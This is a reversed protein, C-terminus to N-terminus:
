NSVPRNARLSNFLVLLSSSSMAIVAFLPTVYGFIAFPVALSNYILSIALNQKMIRNAKKISSIIQLIPYLKDQQIIIDASNQSIDSANSFSISIDALTLAPADNIGDGVMIIKKGTKKLNTLFNIKDIPSQSHYFDPIKLKKSVNSVSQKTDGSLISLEFNSRKLQEIIKKSDSKLQDYFTLIFEQDGIKMFLSGVNQNEKVSDDFNIQCFEKKGLRIKQGDLLAELGLGKHEIANIDLLTQNYAALVAKSFPHNSSKSVSAAIKLINNRKSTTINVLKDNQIQQINQLKMKGLTLSGTKDFIINTISTIKEIVEGSKIIIGSKLLTSISITQVIPVALALACPCAIILVAITNSIAIDLNSEFFFKWLIYTFIAITTTIPIYLKSLNDAIKVYHGKKSEINETLKIIRSLISNSNTKTVLIKIPSGINISGSFVTSDKSIKQPLSEGTIISQDVESEGEIVIGDAAIKEGHNCLLIMGEKIQNSPITKVLNNHLIKAYSAMILSFESALSFAKKRVKLDLYRGVLLFFILMVASDFYIHEANNFTKILSVFSSLIIAISIMLDMNPYGKIASKYASKIFPLSAIAIVPIAIIASYLHLLNRTQHGMATSDYFWLAFSVLMLNGAGFGAIALSKLINNDYKQEEKDIIQQNLPLLNYGIDQIIKLSRSGNKLSGKWRISLTKKSLNVRASIINPQKRLINEILWICAACHLGQILLNASFDQNVEQNAVEALDLDIEQEPKIKREKINIIRFKYFSKFGLNNIINYAAECGACCFEGNKDDCIEFCHLCEM